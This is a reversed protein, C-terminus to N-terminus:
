LVTIVVRFGFSDRANGYYYNHSFAFIGSDTTWGIGGGRYFFPSDTSPFFSRDSYWASTSQGGGNNSIEWIADGYYGNNPIAVAYNNSGTDESGVNYVNKYKDEANILNLGYTTLRDSGNNLYAAVYESAGGSMDYIGTINGTTSAQQGQTSKYDNTTGVDEDASVSSGASGTIYSSSNNIWVESGKGYRSQSLYAVAGWETNKMLHPDIEADNSSLGYPNGESNLETCVKFINSITISRWSTVGAKIQTTLNTTNANTKSDGYENTNSAEFKGVWFGSLEEGGYSFAPHVVYDSMGGGVTAEPYTVKSSYDEGSKTKNEESLFTININGGTTGNSHYQTTIQYAFRPIWVLMSYNSDENLIGDSNFVDQDGDADKGNEGALVVNAWEKEEYNYWDKDTKDTKLWKNQADDWKVPIMGDSVEPPVVISGDIYPEEPVEPIESDEAMINAYEDMLTNLSEQEEKAAEETMEKALKARQILGGEGLVVNLTVTALIILIVVTIVLAILTIGKEKQFYKSLKLVKTKKKM